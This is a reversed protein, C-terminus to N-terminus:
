LVWPFGMRGLLVGAAAGILVQAGWPLARYKAFLEIAKAFLEAKIAKIDM